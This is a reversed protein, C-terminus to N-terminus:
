RFRVRQRGQLSSGVQVNWCNSSVAPRNATLLSRINKERGGSARAAVRDMELQGGSIAVRVSGRWPVFDV